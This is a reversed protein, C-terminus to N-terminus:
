LERTFLEIIKDIIQQETLDTFESLTNATEQILANIFRELENKCFSSDAYEDLDYKNLRFFIKDRLDDTDIQIEDTYEQAKIVELFEIVANLQEIDKRTETEYTELLEKHQNVTELMEALDFNTTSFLNSDKRDTNM